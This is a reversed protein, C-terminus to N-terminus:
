FAKQLFYLGIGLGPNAKVNGGHKEIQEAVFRKTEEDLIPTPLPAFLDVAHVIIWCDPFQWLHSSKEWPVTVSWSNTIVSFGKPAFELDFGIPDVVKSPFWLRRLAFYSGILWCSILIGFFGNGIGLWFSFRDRSGLTCVCIVLGVVSLVFGTWGVYRLWFRRAAQYYIRETALNQPVSIRRSFPPEEIHNSDPSM